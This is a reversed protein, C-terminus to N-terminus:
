GEAPATIAASLWDPLALAVMDEVRRHEISVGYEVLALRQRKPDAQALPVAVLRRNVKSRYHMRATNEQGIYCGKTFDVGNLEEANAELWLTQDQGLEGVGEFVHLSLRHRRWAASVDQGDASALWRYGLTPLRPDRPRGPEDLAWHAFIAPDRAITVPRRLRYMSLRRMLADGQAAECDILVDDGDAWLMFDFLAKGQPTLLGSWRPVGPSLGIVDQTVLGQLFARAEAGSVRLVARDALMGHPTTDTM